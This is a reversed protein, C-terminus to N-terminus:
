RPQRHAELWSELIVVAAVADVMARRRGRKSAAKLREEAEFTSLREDHLEVELGTMDRLHRAFQEAARAAPGITGDMNLPLGVIVRRAELERLRENLAALDRKLSRRQIVGVPYAVIGSSECAAIGLRRRGYDIAAIIM